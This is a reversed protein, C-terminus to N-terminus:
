CRVQMEYRKSTNGLLYTGTSIVSEGVIQPAECQDKLALLAMKDRTAKDHPDYNIDKLDPISVVYDYGQSDAKRVTLANPNQQLPM